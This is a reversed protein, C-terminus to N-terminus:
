FQVERLAMKVIYCKADEFTSINNEEFEEALDFVSYEENCAYEIENDFAWKDAKDAIYEFYFSTM